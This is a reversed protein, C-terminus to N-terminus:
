IKLSEHQNNIISKLLLAFGVVSVGLCFCAFNDRGMTAFKITAALFSINNLVALVILFEKVKEELKILQYLAYSLSLAFFSLDINLFYDPLPSLLASSM